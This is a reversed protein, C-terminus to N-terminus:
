QGVMLVVILGTGLGMLWTATAVKLTRVTDAWRIDSILNQVELKSVGDPYLAAIRKDIEEPSM